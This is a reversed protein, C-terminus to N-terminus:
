RNTLNRVAGGRQQGKEAGTLAADAARLIGHRVLQRALAAIDLLGFVFLFGLVAFMAREPWTGLSAALLRYGLGLFVVAIQTGVAVLFPDLFRRMGGEPTDHLMLLYSPSDLSVVIALAAFVVALLAGSLFLLDGAISLREPLKTVHLAATAGGVGIVIALLGEPWIAERLKFEGLARWVGVKTDHQLSM